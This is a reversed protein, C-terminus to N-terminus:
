IEFLYLCSKHSLISNWVTTNLELPNLIIIGTLQEAEGFKLHNFERQILKIRNYTRENTDDRTNLACGSM